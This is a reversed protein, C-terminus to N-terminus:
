RALYPGTTLHRSGLHGGTKKFPAKLSSALTMGKTLISGFKGPGPPPPPPPALGRRRGAARAPLPPAPSQCPLSVLEGHFIGALLGQATDKSCAWSLGSCVGM